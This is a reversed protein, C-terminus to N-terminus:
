FEGTASIGAGDRSAFGSFRPAHSSVRAAPRTFYLYGTLAAGGATGIWLALNVVGLTRLSDHQSEADPAHSGTSQYDGRRDLYVAGTIGAAVALALTAGGAVYVSTPIPREPAHDRPAAVASPEEARPALPAPTVAAPAVAAEVLPAAELAPITVTRADANAGIDVSTAWPKKGPAKAEVSHKGPDVPTPVGLAARGIGVGDLLIVLEPENVEPALALTLRSLKSDLAAIREEAYKIRSQRRDRRSQVLADSYELWASAIKGQAEHCAALNLLTGTAPDLRYSEAFKPCAETFNGAASLERAQRYLTEALSVETASQAGANGALLLLVGGLAVGAWRRRHPRGVRTM